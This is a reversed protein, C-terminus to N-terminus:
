GSAPWSRQVAATSSSTSGTAGQNDTVTLTVTYSGAGAYSHSPNQATATGGDGFSWQWAVVSGDPDNSRDTFACTLWSSALAGPSEVYRVRGPKRSSISPRARTKPARM